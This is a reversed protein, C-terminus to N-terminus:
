IYFIYLKEIICQIIKRSKKSGYYVGIAGLTGITTSVVASVIAIIFTNKTAEILSENYFLDKYLEFSFGTWVGLQDSVTFSYVVLVLIPLYMLFLILGLYSRAVIKKVNQKKVM